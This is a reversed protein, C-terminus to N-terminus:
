GSYVVSVLGYAMYRYVWGSACAHVPVGMNGHMWVGMCGFCRWVGMYGCVRVWVGIWKVGMCRSVWVGM